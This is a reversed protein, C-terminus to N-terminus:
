SAVQLNQSNGQEMRLAVEESVLRKHEAIGDQVARAVVEEIHPVYKRIIAQMDADRGQETLADLTEYESEPISRMVEYTARELLVEGLAEVIQDQEQPTLHGISLEEIIRAHIDQPNMLSQNM